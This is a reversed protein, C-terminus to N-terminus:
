RTTLRTTTPEYLSRCPSCCAKPRKWRPRYDALDKRMPDRLYTVTGNVNQITDDAHESVKALQDTLRDIKPREDAILVTLTTSVPQVKKQNQPGTM